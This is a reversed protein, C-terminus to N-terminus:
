LIIKIRFDHGFVAEFRGPEKLNTKLRTLYETFDDPRGSTYLSSMYAAWASVKWPGKLMLAVAKQFLSLRHDRVYPGCLVIGAVLDPLEAAAWVASAAAMSTGVVVVQSLDLGRILAVIDQGIVDPEYSPWNVSSAGHGRLDM